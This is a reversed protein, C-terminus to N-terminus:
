YSLDLQWDGKKAGEVLLRRIGQLLGLNTTVQIGKDDAEHFSLVPQDSDLHHVLVKAVLLIKDGFPNKNVNNLFKNALQNQQSAQEKEFRDSIRQKVEEPDAQTTEEKKTTITNLLEWFVSVFRRTFWMSLEQFDNTIIKFLLRDERSVYNITMQSLKSM